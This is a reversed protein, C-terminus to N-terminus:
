FINQYINVKHELAIFMENETIITMYMNAFLLLAIIRKEETQFNFIHVM